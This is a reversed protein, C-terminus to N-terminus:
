RDNQIEQTYKKIREMNKEYNDKISKNIYPLLADELFVEYLFRGNVTAIPSIDGFIKKSSGKGLMDDFHKCIMKEYNEFDKDTKLAEAKESIEEGLKTIKDLISVDSPNFRIVRKEDGNIALEKYGEDFNLSEM